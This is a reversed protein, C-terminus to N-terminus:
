DGKRQFRDQFAPNSALVAGLKKLGVHLRWKVTGTRIGLVRAIERTRLGEFFRLVLVNEYRDGLGSIAWNLVRLEELWSTLVEPDPDPDAVWRGLERVDDLPVERRRGRRRHLDHILNTATRYLWARRAPESPSLSPFAVFARNFTEATVDEADSMSLLRRAAYSLITDYYREFLAGLETSIPILEAPGDGRSRDPRGKTKPAAEIESM